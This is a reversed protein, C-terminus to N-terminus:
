KSILRQADAIQGAVIVSKVPGGLAAMAKRATKHADQLNGTGAQAKALTLLQSPMPKVFSNVARQAFSLAMQADRPSSGLEMLDEAAFGLADPSADKSEALRVAEEM